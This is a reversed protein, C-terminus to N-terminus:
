GGEPGCRAQLPIVKVKGKNTGVNKDLYSRYKQWACRKTHVLAYMKYAGECLDRFPVILNTM